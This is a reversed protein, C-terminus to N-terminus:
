ARWAYRSSARVRPSSAGRSCAGGPSRSWTSRSRRRSPVSFRLTFSSRAPNPFPTALAITAAPRTPCAARRRCRGHPQHLPSRPRGPDIAPRSSTSTGTATSTASVPPTGFSRASIPSPWSSRATATAACRTSRASARTPGVLDLHGDEDLDVCQHTSARHSILYYAGPDFDASVITETDFVGAGQGKFVHLIPSRELNSLSAVYENYVLDVRGDEDLDGLAVSKAPQSLVHSMVTTYGRSGNDLQSVVLNTCAIVLVLGMLM